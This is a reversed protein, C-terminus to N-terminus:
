RAKAKKFHGERELERLQHKAARKSVGFKKMISEPTDNPTVRRADVFLEGSYCDAQWEAYHTNPYVGGDFYHVDAQGLHLAVHGLEHGITFRYEGIGKHAGDWVDERIKMTILGEVKDYSVSGLDGPMDMESAKAIHLDIRFDTKENFFHVVSRTLKHIDICEEGAAFTDRWLHSVKRIEARERPAVRRGRKYKSIETM